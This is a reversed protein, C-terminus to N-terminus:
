QVVAQTLQAERGEQWGTGGGEWSPDKFAQIPSHYFDQRRSIMQFVPKIESCVLFKWGMWVQSPLYWNLSAWQPLKCHQPRPTPPPPLLCNQLSWFIAKLPLPEGAGETGLCKTKPPFPNGLNERAIKIENEGVKGKLVKLKTKCM